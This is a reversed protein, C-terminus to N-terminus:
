VRKFFSLRRLASIKKTKPPPLFSQHLRIEKKAVKRGLGGAKRFKRGYGVV